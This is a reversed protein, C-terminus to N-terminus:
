DPSPPPISIGAKILRASDLLVDRVLEQILTKPSLDEPFIEIAAKLAPLDNPMKPCEKQIKILSEIIESEDFEGKTLNELILLWFLACFGDLWDKYPLPSKYFKPNGKYFEAIKTVVKKAVEMYQSPLNYEAEIYSCLPDTLNKRIIKRQKSQPLNGFGCKKELRAVKSALNM